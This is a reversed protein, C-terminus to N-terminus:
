MPDDNHEEIKSIIAMFIERNPLPIKQNDEEQLPTGEQFPLEADELHQRDQQKNQKKPRWLPGKTPDHVPSDLDSELKKESEYATNKPTWVRKPAGERLTQVRQNRESNSYSGTNSRTHFLTGRTSFGLIHRLLDENYPLADPPAWGGEVRVSLDNM